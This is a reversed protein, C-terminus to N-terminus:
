DYGAMQLQQPFQLIVPLSIASSVPIYMHKSVFYSCTVPLKRIHRTGHEFGPGKAITIYMSLALSPEPLNKTKGMHNPKMHRSNSLLSHFYFIEKNCSFTTNFGWLTSGKLYAFM